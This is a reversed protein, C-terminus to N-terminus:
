HCLTCATRMCALYCSVNGLMLYQIDFCATRFNKCRFIVCVCVCVCVYIYIYIYTYIDGESSLSCIEEPKSRGEKWHSGAINEWGLKTKIRGIAPRYDRGDETCNISEAVRQRFEPRLGATHIGTAVRQREQLWIWASKWICYQRWYNNSTRNM